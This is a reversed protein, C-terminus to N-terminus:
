QVWSTGFGREFQRQFAAVGVQLEPDVELGGAGLNGPFNLQRSCGIDPQSGPRLLEDELTRDCGLRDYVSPGADGDHQGGDSVSGGVAIPEIGGEPDGDLVFRASRCEFRVTQPHEVIPGVQDGGGGGVFGALLIRPLRLNVVIDRHADQGNGTLAAWVESILLPVSGFLVGLIGIGILAVFLLTALKTKSM